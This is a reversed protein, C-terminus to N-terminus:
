GRPQFVQRAIMREKESDSDVSLHAAVESEVLTFPADLEVVRISPGANALHRRDTVVLADTAYAIAFTLSLV